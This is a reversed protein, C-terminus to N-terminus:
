SPFRSLCSYDSRGRCPWCRGPWRSGTSGSGFVANPRALRLCGRGGRGADRKPYGQNDRIDQTIKQAARGLARKVDAGDIIDNFANQFISTIVPYAPTRPRPVAFGGTLQTVYIRLPGGEAYRESKAIASHTGPVAGNARTMELIQQDQLLFDIFKAAAEPIRLAQHHGLVLFGPGTRSGSGFDPLPLLVLDDGHAERYREYEWHGVWSLAVRGSVFANDDVNEDVREQEHVWRQFWQMAGVSAESDFVGERRTTM